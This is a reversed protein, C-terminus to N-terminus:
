INKRIKGSKEQEKDGAKREPLPQGSRVAATVNVAGDGTLRFVGLVDPGPKGPPPEERFHLGRGRSEPMAEPVYGGAFGSPYSNEDYIWINVDLRKAEELAAKWLRFWDASLYPTMLGPQPHVWVQRVKQSALERLTTLVQEETLLDNWTWLPGTSYERPPDAFVARVASSDEAGAVGSLLIAGLLLALVAMGAEKVVAEGQTDNRM